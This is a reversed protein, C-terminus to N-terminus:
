PPDHLFEAVGGEKSNEETDGREAGARRYLLFGPEEDAIGQKDGDKQDDAHKQDEFNGVFVKVGAADEDVQKERRDDRAKADRDIGPDLRKFFVPQGDKRPTGGTGHRGHEADQPETFDEPEVFLYGPGEEGLRDCAGDGQADGRFVAADRGNRYRRYYEGTDQPAEKGREEYFEEAEFVGNGRAQAYARGAVGDAGGPGKFDPLGFAGHAAKGHSQAADDRHDQSGDGSGQSRARM